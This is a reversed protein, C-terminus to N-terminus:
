TKNSKQKEGQLKIKIKMGLHSYGEASLSGIEMGTELCNRSVKKGECMRLEMGMGLKM